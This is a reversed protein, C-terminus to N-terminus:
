PVLNVIGAVPHHSDRFFSGYHDNSKCKDQKNERERPAESDIRQQEQECKEREHHEQAPFAAARNVSKAAIPLAPLGRWAYRM